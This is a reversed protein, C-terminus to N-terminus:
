WVSRSCSARSSAKRLSTSVPNDCTSSLDLAVTEASSKLARPRFRRFSGFHGNSVRLRSLLIDLGGVFVKRSLSAEGRSISHDISDDCRALIETGKGVHASPSRVQVVQSEFNSANSLTSVDHEVGHIFGLKVDNPHDMLRTVQIGVVHPREFNRGILIIRLARGVTKEPRLASDSCEPVAGRNPKEIWVLFPARM